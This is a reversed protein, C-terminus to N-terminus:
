YWRPVIRGTPTNGAIAAKVAEIANAAERGYDAAGEADYGINARRLATLACGQEMAATIGATDGDGNRIAIAVIEDGDSSLVRGGTKIATEAIATKILPKLAASRDSTLLPAGTEKNRHYHTRLASLAYILKEIASISLNLTM